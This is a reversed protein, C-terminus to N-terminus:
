SLSDALVHKNDTSARIARIDKATLKASLGRQTNEAGTVVELHDPNVCARVRCLHDLQLGDPVHHLEYVARHAGVKRRASGVRVQGYGTVAAIADMWIWCPTEYGMDREQWQDLGMRRGAGGPHGQALRTPQGKIHSLHPRTRKAIAAPRGCGCECLGDSM